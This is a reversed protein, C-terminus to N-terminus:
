YSLSTIVGSRRHQSLQQQMTHCFQVLNQYKRAQLTFPTQMEVQIVQVLMAYAVIDLLCLEDGMFYQKKGLITSLHQLINNYIEFVQEESHRGVGQKNLTSKVQKRAVSPIIRKLVFPLKFFIHQKFDLWANEPLWRSYVICFYFNDELSKIILQSVAEQEATLWADFDVQYQKKLYQSIFYSDSIEQGDDDIYPLKKKPAQSMNRADAKLQYPLNALRLMTDVKMVFPSLDVVGLGGCFGYLIIM